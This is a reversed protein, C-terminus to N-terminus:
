LRSYRLATSYQIQPFSFALLFFPMQEASPKSRNRNLIHHLWPWPLVFQLIGVLQPVWAACWAFLGGGLIVVLVQFDNPSKGWYTLCSIPRCKPMIKGSFCKSDTLPQTTTTPECHTLPQATTIPECHTLPQATTTLNRNTLPQATIVPKHNTLPQATTVPM